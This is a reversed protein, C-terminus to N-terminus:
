IVNFNMFLLKLLQQVINACERVVERLLLELTTEFERDGILCFFEICKQFIDNESGM